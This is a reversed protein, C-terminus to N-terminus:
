LPEYQDIKTCIGLRHYNIFNHLREINDSNHQVLFIQSVKSDSDIAVPQKLQICLFRHKVKPNLKDSLTKTV